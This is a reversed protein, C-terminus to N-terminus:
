IEYPVKAGFTQWNEIATTNLYGMNWKQNVDTENCEKSILKKIDLDATICNNHPFNIIQHTKLDYKWLQHGFTFHCDMLNITAADICKWNADDHKIFRNWTFIFSQSWSPNVKDVSCTTLELPKEFQGYMYSVCFNSNAESIIAGSAFKGWTSPNYRERIEPAVEDLFYKFPKCNLRKKLAFAETLDGADARNYRAPDSKYLETKFEDMWVEAVRKLNRASYDIGYDALKYKSNLKSTHAVHSCPVQLMRGGCLWIKFSMEYNEGNWIMMGEDYGGLEFFFDKRIAYGGGTMVPYEFPTPSSETDQPRMPMWKFVLGWDFGGRTGHGLFEYELTYPSFSDLIPVCATKPNLQIPELLPPLWNVNVEMHSDLFVIVDGTAKRAGELRTQILGKREKNQFFKVKEGFNDAVYSKLAYPLDQKSSKDNFLIIEHLLDKPTRNWISHLCRLILSRFIHFTPIM